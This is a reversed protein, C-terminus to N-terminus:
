EKAGGDAPCNANNARPGIHSDEAGLVHEVEYTGRVINAEEVDDRSFDRFVMKSALFPFRRWNLTRALHEAVWQATKASPDDRNLSPHEYCSIQLALTGAVFPGCGERKRFGTVAVTVCVGLQAIAREIEFGYDALDEVVVSVRGDAAIAPDARIAAAVGEAVDRLMRGDEGRGGVTRTM